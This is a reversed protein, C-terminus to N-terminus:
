RLPEIEMNLKSKKWLKWIKESILKNKEWLKWIMECIMWIKWIMGCNEETNEL